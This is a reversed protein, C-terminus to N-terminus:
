VDKGSMLSFRLLRLSKSEGVQFSPRSVYIEDLSHFAMDDWIGESDRNITGLDM